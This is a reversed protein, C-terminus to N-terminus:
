IYEFRKSMNVIFFLLSILFSFFHTQVINDITELANGLMIQNFYTLTFHFIEEKVWV